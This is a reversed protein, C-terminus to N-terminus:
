GRFFNLEQSSFKFLNEKSLGVLHIFFLIKTPESKAPQATMGPRSISDDEEKPSGAM